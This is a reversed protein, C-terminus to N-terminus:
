GGGVAPFLGLRDGDRLVTGTEGKVGNVFILKVEAEPLGLREMVQGVTEGDALPFREPNEPQHTVLQAFCRVSIHM